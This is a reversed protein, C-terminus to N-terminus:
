EKELAKFVYVFKSKTEKQFSKRISHAIKESVLDNAHVSFGYSELFKETERATEENLCEWSRFHECTIGKQREHESKRRIPDNSIGAYWNNEQYKPDIEKAYKVVNQAVAHAVFGTVEDFLKTM